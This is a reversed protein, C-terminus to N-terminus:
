VPQRQRATATLSHRAAGYNTNVKNAFKLNEGKNRKNIAPITKKKKTNKLRIKPVKLKELNEEEVKRKLWM